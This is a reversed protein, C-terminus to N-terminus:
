SQNNLKKAKKMAEIESTRAAGSCGRREWERECRDRQWDYKTKRRDRTTRTIRRGSSKYGGNIKKVRPIEDKM